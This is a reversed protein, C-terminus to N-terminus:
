SAEQERARRRECDPCIGYKLVHRDYRHDSRGCERCRLRDNRLHAMAKAHQAIGATDPYYSM